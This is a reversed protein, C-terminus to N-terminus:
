LSLDPGDQDRSPSKPPTPAPRPGGVMRIQIGTSRQPQSVLAPSQLVYKQSGKDHKVVLSQWPLKPDRGNLDDVLEQMWAPQGYMGATINRAALLPNKASAEPNPGYAVYHYLWHGAGEQTKIAAIPQDGFRRIVSHAAVDAWKSTAFASRRRFPEPALEGALPRSQLAVHVADYVPGRIMALYEARSTQRFVTVDPILETLVGSMIEQIQAEDLAPAAPSHTAM